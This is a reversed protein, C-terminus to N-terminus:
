SLVKYIAIIKLENVKHLLWHLSNGYEKAIELEESFQKVFHNESISGPHRRFKALYKRIHIAKSKQAMRMWLEYDWAAKYKPNLNNAKNWLDMRWFTAPQNVYNECLLVNRSYVYGIINKYWTIPKRIESDNEDIISCRGYLWHKDPNAKFADVVAQLTGPEYTDDANLWCGIDGSAMAMGNNIAEQPSGDQQSIVTLKDGYEALINLTKDTSCGDRVIYEIEFDGKQSLISDVTQRIFQEGNLVPTIITIKM